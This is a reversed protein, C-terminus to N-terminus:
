VPSSVVGVPAGLKGCNSRTVLGCIYMIMEVDSEVNIVEATLVASYFEYLM